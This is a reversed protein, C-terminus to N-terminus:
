RRAAARRSCSVDRLAFAAACYELCSRCVMDSVRSSMIIHLILLFRVCGPGGSRDAAPSSCVISGPCPRLHDSGPENKGGAPTKRITEGEGGYLPLDPFSVSLALVPKGNKYLPTAICQVFENNEEKERAIATQRVDLLQQYLVNADVISHKTLRPFGDSFM